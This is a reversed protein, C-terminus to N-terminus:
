PIPPPPFAAEQSISFEVNAITRGDLSYAARYKGYGGKEVLDSVAEKFAHSEDESGWMYHQESVVTGTDRREVTLAIDKGAFNRDLEIIVYLSEDRSSFETRIDVPHDIYGGCTYISGPPVRVREQHPVLGLILKRVAADAARDLVDAEGLAPPSGFSSYTGTRADTWVVQGTAADILQISVEVVGDIKFWDVPVEDYYAEHYSEDFEFPEGYFRVEHCRDAKYQLVTGALVADAKVARGLDAAAPADHRRRLSSVKDPAAAELDDPTLVRYPGHKSLLAALKEAVIQEADPYESPNDFPPVAITAFKESGFRPQITVWVAPGACGSLVSAILGALVSVRLYTKV